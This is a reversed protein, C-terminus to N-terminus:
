NYVGTPVREIDAVPCPGGPEGVRAFSRNPDVQASRDHERSRSSDARGPRKRRSGHLDAIRVRLLWESIRASRRNQIMYLLISRTLGPGTLMPIGSSQRAARATEASCNWAGSHSLLAM